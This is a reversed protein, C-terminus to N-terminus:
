SNKKYKKNNELIQLKSKKIEGLSTEYDVLKYFKFGCKEQVRKSQNNEIFHCCVLFDLDVENFCYNIVEKIAEAMIGRGWYDKSLVYGLERGTRKSFEPLDNENYKEIGISGIVKEKYCIAFTKKNEIFRKLIKSTEDISKHHLWGAMEGVGDVKAYEYFDNLDTTKFSRLILRETKLVVNSIDIDINM